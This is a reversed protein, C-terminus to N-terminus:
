RAKAMGMAYPLKQVLSQVCGATAVQLALDVTGSPLKWTNNIKIVSNKQHEKLNQM